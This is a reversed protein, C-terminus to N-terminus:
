GELGKKQLERMDNLDWLNIHAVLIACLNGAHGM